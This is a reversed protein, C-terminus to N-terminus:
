ATVAPAPRVSRLMWLGVALVVCGAATLRWDLYRESAAGLWQAIEPRYVLTAAVGNNIAHALVSTWISGTRWVLWTLLVGLVLTPLLRYISAHALGFLLGCVLLAPWAGLRRLGSLVLGRFFLEECVGPTVAVVLWVVWLPADHGDLLLLREFAKVLSDPPPLLRILIGGAVTWASLGILAGAVLGLIPPRRLALTARFPFRFGATFALAPALFFAFETVLLTTVIGADRLLLSAYFVLVLVAAFATLAFAPTPEAPGTREFGLISRLSERGGLLVQEREFVRAALLLALVAYATSSLLVLFMMEPAAEAVLLAKILLAINVVPVFATWANLEIGRLMTVSAPMALVMYIPTLFNQADKFGKAFAAVALFAATTLLTVPVLMVFSLALTSPAVSLQEGPIIRLLTAGLSAVNALAALLAITWVALFKGAIIEAPSLPACLLTQMTNREKEGATLDIAPYFGGLLSMTILLFPLFLGLVMGSVRSEPAVNAARIDLGLAFGEALGRARERDAVLARRYDALLREVRDRAEVSDERVSDYYVSVSGARADTMARAVDPWIVLVVDATRAALAARAALLVPHDPERPPRALRGGAAASRGPSPPKPLAPRALTGGDLGARIEAPVGAWARRTVRPDAALAADLGAPNAGWVAVTSARGATAEEQSAQLKSFGIMMLPYLLVPLVVMMMLTRRDRLTETLEKRLITLVIAIRM